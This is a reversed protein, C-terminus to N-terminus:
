LNSDQVQWGTQVRRIGAHLRGVALSDCGSQPSNNECPIPSSKILENDSRRKTRLYRLPGAQTGGGMGASRQPAGLFHRRHQMSRADHVEGSTRSPDIPLRHTLEVPIETGCRRFIGGGGILAITEGCKSEFGTLSRRHWRRGWRWRRTRRGQRTALKPRTFLGGHRRGRWDHLRNRRDYWM